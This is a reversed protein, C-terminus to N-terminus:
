GTYHLIWTSIQRNGYSNRYILGDVCMSSLKFPWFIKPFYSFYCLKPSRISYRYHRVLIICFEPPFKGIEMYIKTFSDMWVCPNFNSHDFYRLFIVLIVYNLCALVIDINDLWCLAFDMYFNAQKWTSKPLHILAWM